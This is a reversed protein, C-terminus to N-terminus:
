ITLFICLLIIPPFLMLFYGFFIIVFTQLDLYAKREERREKQFSSNWEAASKMAKKIYLSMKSKELKPQFFNFYIKSCRFKKIKKIKNCQNKIDKFNNLLPMVLFNQFKQVGVKKKMKNCYNKIDKFNILLPMDLFNQFFKETYSTSLTPSIDHVRSFDEIM